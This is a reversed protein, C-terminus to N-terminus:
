KKSPCSPNKCRVIREDFDREVRPVKEHSAVTYVDIIEGQGCECSGINREEDYVDWNKDGIRSKANM